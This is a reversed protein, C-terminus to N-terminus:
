DMLGHCSRGCPQEHDNINRRRRIGGSLLKWSGGLVVELTQFVTALTLAQTTGKFTQRM